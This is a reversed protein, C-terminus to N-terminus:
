FNHQEDKATNEKNEYRHQLYLAFNKVAEVKEPPLSDIVKLIEAIKIESDNEIEM